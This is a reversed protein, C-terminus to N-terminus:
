EMKYFNLTIMRNTFNLYLKNEDIKYEKFKVPKGMYSKFQQNLIERYKLQEM